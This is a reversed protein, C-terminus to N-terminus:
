EDSAQRKEEEKKKTIMTLDAVVEERPVAEQMGIASGNPTQAREISIANTTHAVFAAVTLAKYM